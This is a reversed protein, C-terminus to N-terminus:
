SKDTLPQKASEDASEDVLALATRLLGLVTIGDDDLVPELKVYRLAEKAAEYLAPAAAILRANAEASESVHGWCAAILIGWNMRGPTGQRDIHFTWDEKSSGPNARYMWPGPTFGQKTKRDVSM